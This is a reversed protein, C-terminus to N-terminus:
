AIVKCVIPSPTVGFGSYGQVFFANPKGHLTGIQPFLKATRCLPGGWALDVRVDKLYPFIKLMRRRNWEHPDAPLHEVHDTAAGLLLRNENTVRYYDIVPRIDSDVPAAAHGEPGSCILAKRRRDADLDGRRKV